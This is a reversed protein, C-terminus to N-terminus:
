KTRQFLIYILIPNTFYKATTYTVNNQINKLIERDGTKLVIGIKDIYTLYNRTYTSKLNNIKKKLVFGNCFGGLNLRDDQNLFLDPRKSKLLLLIRNIIKNRLELTLLDVRALSAALPHIRYKLGFDNTEESPGPIQRQYRNLWKDQYALKCITGFLNKDKCCVLGGEGGSVFKNGQLSYVSIDGFTGLKKGNFEGGHCHSCDELLKVDYKRCLEILKEMDCTYGFYHTVCILDIQEFDIAELDFNLTNEDVLGAQVNLNCEVAGIYNSPIVLPNILVAGKSKTLSKYALYLGGTANNVSAVYPMGFKSKALDELADVDNTFFSTKNLIIAKLMYLCQIIKTFVSIFVLTMQLCVLRIWFM